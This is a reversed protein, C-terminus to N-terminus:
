PDSWIPMQPPGPLYFETPYHVEALYLGSPPATAAALTRDRRELVDRLWAPQADGAGVRALSGVINRVMHQLFGTARCEIIVYSGVRLVVLRELRRIPSRAQCGAARFSTFDHEGLLHTSAQAMTEVDLEPRVWWCRGEASYRAHFHPPVDRVWLVAIDPPLNSNIGLLWSRGSRVANTDFHVVQGCAHVGADTRGAAVTSVPADAVAAIASNLAAQISPAHSQNQWGSYVTGDYEVGLAIRTIGAM